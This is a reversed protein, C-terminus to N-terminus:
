AKVSSPLLELLHQRFRAGLASPTYHELFREHGAQAMETLLEPDSHLGKIASAIAAGNAREVMYLHRRHEFADRLPPSDGTVVPMRLALCEYIKNQITMLSQPTTGFAGLCVSADRLRDVMAPQSLWGLFHVNTLGHREVLAKARDLDPGEGILEFAVDAEDLLHRAADVIHTVGHNPIFTGYYVVRFEDTRPGKLFPRFVTDDAGTPVLRFRDADLGFSKHFWEVYAETDQILRDPLQYVAHELLHLLRGTLRHSTVLGRESAILYPSMFIDMVLPRRSLWALIRALIVDLHGPYGVVLVDYAGIRLYARILRCYACVVRWIFSPRWFNGSAVWVRDEIGQWLSQHCELVVVGNRRLGEIM